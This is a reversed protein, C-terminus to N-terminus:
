STASDLAPATEGVPLLLGQEDLADFLEGPYVWAIIVGGSKPALVRAGDAAPATQDVWTYVVDVNPRQRAVDVEVLGRDRSVFIM